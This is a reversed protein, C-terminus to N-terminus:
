VQSSNFFFMVSSYGLAYIEILRCLAMHFVGYLEWPLLVCLKWRLESNSCRFVSLMLLVGSGAGLSFVVREWGLM